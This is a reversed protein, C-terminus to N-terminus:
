PRRPSKITTRGLPAKITSRSKNQTKSAKAHIDPPQFHRPQRERGGLPGRVESVRGNAISTKSEPAAHPDRPTASASTSLSLGGRGRHKSKKSQTVNLRSWREKLCGCQKALCPLAFIARCTRTPTEDRISANEASLLTGQKARNCAVAAPPPWSRQGPAIAPLTRQDCNPLLRPPSRRPEPSRHRYACSTVTIQNPNRHNTM